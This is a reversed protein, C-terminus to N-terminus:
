NRSYVSPRSGTSQYVMRSLSSGNEIGVLHAIQSLPLRNERILEIAKQLRLNKIYQHPSAQYIDKFVRLFHFKSLMAVQALQDLTLQQYYYAHIYDIALYIRRALEIKTSAKASAIHEVQRLQKNHSSLVFSLLEFLSHEKEEKRYQSKVQNVLGNFQPDRFNSRIVQNFEVKSSSLNEMLLESSQTLTHLTDQYLKEGFHINFTETKRKENILLDYHQGSNSIVYTDTNLTVSKKDCRVQSNGNLNLFLSFPGKIDTREVENTNVNLIATPWGSNPLLKDNWTKRESFNQQIAKKLWHIDPFEKLLM